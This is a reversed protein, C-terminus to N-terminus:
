GEVAKRELKWPHVALTAAPDNEDFRVIVVPPSTNGALTLCGDPEVSEVTVWRGVLIGGTVWLKEGVEIDNINM